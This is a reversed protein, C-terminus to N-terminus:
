LENKLIVPISRNLHDLDALKLGLEKVKEM